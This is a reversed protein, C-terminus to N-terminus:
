WLTRDPKTIQRSRAIALADKDVSDTLTSGAAIFAGDGVRIPAILTTNSGIFVHNGVETRFKNKGDYNATIVGCGVNCDTGM